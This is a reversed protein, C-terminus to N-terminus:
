EKEKMHSSHDMTEHNSHSSHDETQYETHSKHMPDDYSMYKMMIDHFLDRKALRYVKEKESQTLGSLLAYSTQDLTTSAQSSQSLWRQFMEESVANVKFTLDAYGEGSINASSGNFTGEKDAMIHLKTAMGTMTYVQGALAPVWFSNMPADSTLSLEIPTDKPINMFNVTAIDYDPYIFLWNWKLSVVQVKVPKVDSEIPKYPDLQHTSIWTIIGLIVIILLPVGWWVAELLRNGELEPEYKAKKNSARYKWAITFLLIFVPVVVFAGLAVTILILDKQQNAILGSTHLVPVDRGDTVYFLAGIIALGVIASVGVQLVRRMVGKQM